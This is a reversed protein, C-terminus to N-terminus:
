PDLMTKTLTEKPLILEGTLMLKNEKILICHFEQIKVMSTMNQTPIKMYLSNSEVKPERYM